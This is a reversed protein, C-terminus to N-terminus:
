RRHMLYKFFLQTFVKCYWVFVAYNDGYGNSIGHPFEAGYASLGGSLLREILGPALSKFLLYNQVMEAM